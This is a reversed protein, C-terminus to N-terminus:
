HSNYVTLFRRLAIELMKRNELIQSGKAGVFDECMHLAKVCVEALMVIPLPGAVPQLAETETERHRYHNHFVRPGKYENLALSIPTTINKLRQQWYIRDEDDRGHTFDGERIMMCADELAMLAQELERDLQRAAEHPSSPQKKLTKTGVSTTM